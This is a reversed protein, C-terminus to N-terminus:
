LSENHRKVTKLCGTSVQRTVPGSPTLREPSPRASPTCREPSPRSCREPSASVATESEFDPLPVLSAVEEDDDAALLAVIPSLKQRKAAPPTCREPSPRASPTCRDPSARVPTESEFDALDLPAPAAEEDDDAALHTTTPSAKQGSKAALAAVISATTDNARVGAAKALNQLEQRSLTTYDVADTYFPPM